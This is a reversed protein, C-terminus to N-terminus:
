IFFVYKSSKDVRNVKNFYDVKLHLDKDNSELVSLNKLIDTIKLSIQRKFLSVM